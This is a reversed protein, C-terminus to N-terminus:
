RWAYEEMRRAVAASYLWPGLADSWELGQPTLQLRQDDLTALDRAVLGLLQPFDDLVDNEFRRIYHRRDLGSAQLISLILMRRRQEDRDLCFGYEVQAFDNESRRVYDALIGAVASSKVAYERSYHLSRTYSRAGCGLGIMGDDQCCYVPEAQKDGDRCFMRLSVQRYSQELLRERGVRYLKLRWDDWSRGNALGTLPRVYLPYLYIEEPDFAVAEDITELWSAPTQSRGGYILDLNVTPFDAEQLQALARQVEGHSQPRGM